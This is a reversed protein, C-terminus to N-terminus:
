QYYYYARTKRKLDKRLTEKKTDLVFSIMYIKQIHNIGELLKLCVINREYSLDDVFVEKDSYQVFVLKEDFLNWDM